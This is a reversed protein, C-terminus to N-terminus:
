EAAQQEGSRDVAQALLHSLGTILRQVAEIPATPEMFSDDLYLSRCAELQLAHINRRPQGHRRLIYDGAYPHNLGCQYGETAIQARLIEAFHTAATGGFRDGVVFDPRRESTYSAVPPMSHIDLLLACGFAERMKHLLASVNDHYPRHYSEIRQQADAFSIPGKWIDGVRSLRRPILGLGGRQKLSIDLKVDKPIDSVMGRDLDDEARNLDIWGRPRHAIITTFGADQAGRVLLDAYRDELRILERASVRCNEMLEPPYDRGSHPVSLLIPFQPRDANKCSFNGNAM